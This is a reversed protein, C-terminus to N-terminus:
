KQEVKALIRGGVVRHWREVTAARPIRRVAGLQGAAANHLKIQLATINWASTDIFCLM